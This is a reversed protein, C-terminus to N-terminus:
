SVHADQSKRVYTVTQQPVASYLNTSVYCCKHIIQPEHPPPVLVLCHRDQCHCCFGCQTKWECQAIHLRGQTVPWPLFPEVSFSQYVSKFQFISHFPFSHRFFLLLPFKLVFKGLLLQSLGFCNSLTSDKLYKPLMKVFSPLHVQSILHLIAIALAANLL